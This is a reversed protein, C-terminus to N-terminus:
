DPWYILMVGILEKLDRRLRIPILFNLLIKHCHMGYSLDLLIPVISICVEKMLTLKSFLVGVVELIELFVNICQLM